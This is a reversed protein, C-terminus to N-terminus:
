NNRHNLTNSPRLIYKSILHFDIETKGELQVKNLVLKNNDLKTDTIRMRKKKGNISVITWIGPWSFLSRYLNHITQSSNHNLDIKIRYKNIYEKLFAPLDSITISENNIAKQLTQWSLFGDDKKLLRTYTALSHNQQVARIKLSTTHLPFIATEFENQFKINQILQNQVMEFGINALKIELNKRTEHKEIATKTQSLIPGHDIKEDMQILTVGTETEGLALPYAIPSAGRYKPLLSPHINWFGWKPVSLIRKPIIRGYAFVLALDPPAHLMSSLVYEDHFIPIAYQLSINKVPSPTLIQKRGVPKDPQTIVALVNVFEKLKKDTIIKELVEASFNPTGFYAINLKM